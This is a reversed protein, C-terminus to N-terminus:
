PFHWEQSKLVKYLSLNLMQNQLFVLRSIILIAFPVIQVFLLKQLRISLLQRKSISFYLM